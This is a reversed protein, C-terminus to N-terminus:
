KAPKGAPAPKQPQGQPGPQGQPQGQPGPQGQPCGEPGHHGHHPGGMMCPAVETAKAEAKWAKIVKGAASKIDKVQKVSVNVQSADPLQVNGPKASDGEHMKGCPKDCAKASDPCAQGKKCSDKCAGDKCAGGKCSDMNCPEGGMPGAPMEHKLVIVVYKGNKSEPKFPQPACEPQPGKPAEGAQPGEPKPGKKGCQKDAGKACAAGKDCKSASDGSACEPRPGKQDECPKVDQPNVDSVFIAEIEKGPVTYADPTVSAADVTDAYEVVLAVPTADNGAVIATVKQPGATKCSVMASLIGLGALCLTFVKKMKM